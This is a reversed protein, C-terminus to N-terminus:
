PSGLPKFQNLQHFDPRGGPLPVLSGHHRAPGLICTVNYSFLGPPLMAAPLRVTAEWRQNDHRWKHSLPLHDAMQRRCGHLELIWFHGCPGLEVELYRADGGLLFVEVVEYQWLNEVRGAPFPPVPADSLPASVTLEVVDPGVNFCAAIKVGDPADAEFFFPTFELDFRTSMMFSLTGKGFIFALHANGGGGGDNLFLM